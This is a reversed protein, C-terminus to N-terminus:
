RRSNKGEQGASRVKGIEAPCQRGCRHDRPQRDGDYTVEQGAPKSDIRDGQYRHAGRDHEALRQGAGDHRQHIGATAHELIDSDSTGLM